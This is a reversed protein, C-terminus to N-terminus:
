WVLPEIHAITIPKQRDDTRAHTIQKKLHLTRRFKKELNKSIECSYEGDQVRCFRVFPEAGGLLLAM